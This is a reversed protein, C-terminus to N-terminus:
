FAAETAPFGPEHVHWPKVAAGAVRVDRRRPDVVVPLSPGFVRPGELDIASSLGTALFNASSRVFILASPWARAAM